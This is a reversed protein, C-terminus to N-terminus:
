KFDSVRPSGCTNIDTVKALKDGVFEYRKLVHAQAFNACLKPPETDIFWVAERAMRSPDGTVEGGALFVGRYTLAM